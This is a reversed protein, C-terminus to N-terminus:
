NLLVPTLRKLYVYLLSYKRKNLLNKDSLSLHRQVLGIIITITKVQFSEIMFGTKLNSPQIIMKGMVEKRMKM